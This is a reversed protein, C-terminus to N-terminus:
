IHILSLKPDVPGEGLAQPIWGEEIACASFALEIAAAAGLTHGTYAKTSVTPVDKGLM